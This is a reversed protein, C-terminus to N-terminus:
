GCHSTLFIRAVMDGFGWALTGICTSIALLWNQTKQNRADAELLKLVSCIEEQVIQRVIATDIPAPPLKPTLGFRQILRFLRSSYSRNLFMVGLALADAIAGGRGADADCKTVHVAVYIGGLSLVVCAVLILVSLLLRWM